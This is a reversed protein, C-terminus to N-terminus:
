GCNTQFLGHHNIYALVRDPVYATVGQAQERLLRRILSSSIEKVPVAFEQVCAPNVFLNQAMGGIDGGNRRCVAITAYDPIRTYEKWTGMEAFADFGMIFVLEENRNLDSFLQRLTDITFSFGQRRGEIDSVSFKPNTTVALKLMALRHDFLCLDMDRKHPPSASPIFVLRDLYLAQLAVEALHLHGVHVPNFTGGLIGTRIRKTMVDMM